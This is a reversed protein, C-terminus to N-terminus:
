TAASLEEEKDGQTLSRVFSLVAHRHTARLSRYILVLEMADQDKLFDLEDKPPSSGDIAGSNSPRIGEFFHSVHVDLVEAIAWLRSASVRNVGSEYKQVQQFRVGIARGLEAQSMSASLRKARIRQGVLTDVTEM